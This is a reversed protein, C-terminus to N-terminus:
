DTPGSSLLGAEHLPWLRGVINFGCPFGCSPATRSATQSGSDGWGAIEGCIAFKKHSFICFLYKNM